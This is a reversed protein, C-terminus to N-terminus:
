PLAKKLATIVSKLERFTTKGDSISDIAYEDISKLLKIDENIKAVITLVKNRKGGLSGLPPPLKEAKRNELLQIEGKIPEIIDYLWAPTIEGYERMRNMYTVLDYLQEITFTIKKDGDFSQKFLDYMENWQPDQTNVVITHSDKVLTLTAM